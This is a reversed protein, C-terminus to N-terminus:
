GFLKKQLKEITEKQKKTAYVEAYLIWDEPEFDCMWDTFGDPFEDKYHPEKWWVEELYEEFGKYNM